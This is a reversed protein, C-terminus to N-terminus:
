VMENWDEAIPLSALWWVLSSVAGDLRAKFAELSPVDVAERCLRTWHRVVRVTFFKKKADLTFRSEELKFGNERTRNSCARIFLGEGTKRYDRKVPPFCYELHPRMLASNLPLIVEGARSTM